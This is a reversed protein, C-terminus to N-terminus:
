LRGYASSLRTRATFLHRAVEATIKDAEATYRAVREPEPLDLYAATLERLADLLEGVAASRANEAQAVTVDISMRGHHGACTDDTTV